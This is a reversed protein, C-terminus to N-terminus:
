DRVVTVPYKRVRLLYADKARQPISYSSAGTKTEIGGLVKGSKSVEIDIVRRGFPTNKGVETAVDYGQRHMGKAIEDRFADGKAKNKVVQAQENATGRGTRSAQPGTRPGRLADLATLSVVAATSVDGLFRAGEGGREYYDYEYGTHFDEGYVSAYLHKGGFLRAVFVRPPLTAAEWGKANSGAQYADYGSEAVHTGLRIISDKVDRLPLTLNRYYDFMRSRAADEFENIARMGGIMGAMAKDFRTKPVWSSSRGSDLSMLGDPTMFYGPQMFLPLDDMTNHRSGDAYIATTGEWRVPEPLAYKPGMRAVSEIGLPDLCTGLGGGAWPDTQGIVSQLDFGSFTIPDYQPASTQQLPIIPGSL